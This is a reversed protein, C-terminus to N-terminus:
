SLCGADVPIASGSICFSASSLLFAIIHAVCLPEVLGMYQRTMSYKANETDGYIKFYEEGMPTKVFAPMVSNIRIKKSHLEHALANIAGNLAAKSSCYASMASAGTVSATSSMAVISGGNNNIKKQAFVRVLEIFSYFHILMTEHIAEFVTLSLPMEKIDGACHLLGDLKGGDEIIRQMLEEIKPVEKFDFCHYSNESGELEDMTRKLKEENRAVLIIKAGFTSLLISTERGIGSSAGTVLIRKGKIDLLDFVNM